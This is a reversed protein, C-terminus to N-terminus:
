DRYFFGSVSARARNGAAPEVKKVCHPTGGRFLVLSNPMPLYFVGRSATVGPYSPYLKTDAATKCVPENQESMDLLIEGGWAPDWLEHVYYVYAAVCKRDTHWTLGSGSPYLYARITFSSWGGINDLFQNIRENNVVSHAFIRLSPLVGDLDIESGNLPRDITTDASHYSIGDGYAYVRQLGASHIPQMVIREFGAATTHWCEEEMFSRIALHNSSSNSGDM